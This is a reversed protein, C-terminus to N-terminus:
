ERVEEEFKDVVKQFDYQQAIELGGKRLRWYLDAESSITQVADIVDGVSYAEPLVYANKLHHLYETCNSTIVPTGCAMAELPIYGFGEFQSLYILFKSQQYMKVLEADSLHGRAELVAFGLDTLKKSVELCLLPNKRAINKMIVLMVSKPIKPSEAQKFKNLNIGNGIFVGQVKEKLWNSVCLKTLPLDYTAKAKAQFVPDSSFWPEYNQVLYFGRGKGSEVTPYATAWYTAVNVDCDPIYATLRKEWDFFLKHNKMYYKNFIRAILPKYELNIIEAKVPTFWGYAQKLAAHTISVKYGRDVLANSLEFIFRNGGSLSLDGSNFNVHM